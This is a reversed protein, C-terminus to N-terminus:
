NDSFGDVKYKVGMTKDFWFDCDYCILPASEDQNVRHYGRESCVDRSNSIYDFFDQTNEFQSAKPPILKTLNKKGKVM